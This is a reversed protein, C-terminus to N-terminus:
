DGYLAAVRAAEDAVARRLEDPACVELDTGLRLLQRAAQAPAELMLEAEVWGPRGVAPRQTAMAQEALMPSVARLIRLGEDSLRVTARGAGLRAEFQAVSHPWWASLSFGAPRQVPADLVLLRLISSVRFTRPGGASAAVLYWLGGKLVLGLPALERDHEGDWAAYRVLVRRDQWLAAALTPLHDLAESRHYWPVPDLHFREAIHRANAAADAPLSSLLKLQAAAAQQGLGLDQAADLLGALPVSRAEDATLGTLRTRWGALLAIGGGRGREAYVPVGAASLADVDRYVTRVSVEFERALVAAPIRGRLQLHMTLALLRSSRM